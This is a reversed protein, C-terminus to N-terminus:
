AGGTYFLRIQSRKEPLIPASMELTDLREFVVRFLQDTGKELQAVRDSLSEQILLQRLKVFTRMIAINVRVARESNLVGSLM